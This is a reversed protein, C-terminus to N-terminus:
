QQKLRKYHNYVAVSLVKKADDQGIVYEDLHSKIEKPKLLEIQDSIERNVVGTSEEKVINQAQSICHNCIHGTVGAIMVEVENKARGCFSCKVEKNDM